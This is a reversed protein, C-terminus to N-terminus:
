RYIYISDHHDLMATMHVNARPKFELIEDLDFLYEKKQFSHLNVSTRIPDIQVKAFM